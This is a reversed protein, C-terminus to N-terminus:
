RAGHRDHLDERRWTRPGLKMTSRAASDLLEHAARRRAEDSGAYEELRLRLVANVSTGEHIARIRALKLIEEDVAITLNTM